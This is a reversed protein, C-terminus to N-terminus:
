TCCWILGECLFYLVMDARFMVLLGMDARCMVFLVIDARCTVLQLM